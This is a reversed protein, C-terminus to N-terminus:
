REPPASDVSGTPEVPDAHRGTEAGAQAREDAAAARERKAAAENRAARDRLERMERRRQRSRALGGRLMWLAIVAVLMTAAGTLFMGAADTNVTFSGFDLSVDGGGRAVAGVTVAVAAVLILFGLVIM